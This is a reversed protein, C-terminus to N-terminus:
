YSRSCATTLSSDKRVKTGGSDTLIVCREQSGFGAVWGPQHCRKKSDLVHIRWAPVNSLGSCFRLNGHRVSTSQQVYQAGRVTGRGGYTGKPSNRVEIICITRDFFRGGYKRLRKPLLIMSPYIASRETQRRVPHLRPAWLRIKVQRFPRTAIRLPRM